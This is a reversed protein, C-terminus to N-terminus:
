RGKAIIEALLLDEPTTVKINEYDGPYLKVRYGAKEVIGADDTVESSILEYAKKLLDLRFVQPTQVARLRNRSLTQTVIENDDVLKITDKVDTCCVAAGTEAAAKIGDAILKETLFPRAGDHVLVWDSKSISLIGNRVSDQRLEGGACIGTIKSWRHKKMLDRGVDLKNKHLVLVIENISDSAQLTDVSWAILPKGGLELFAKDAGMRQGIGASVVVAAFKPM